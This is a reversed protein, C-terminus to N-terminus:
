SAGYIAVDFLRGPSITSDCQARAAIRTGSPITIPCYVASPAVCDGSTHSYCYYDPIIVQESGAAGVGIDLLWQNTDRATNAQNGIIILLGRHQRTTAATIETWSGKTNAVAGPDVSTGGSDATATGYDVWSSLGAQVTFPSAGLLCTIQSNAVAATSQTRVAVRSGGPIFVPIWFITAFFFISGISYLLNPLIVQESGAAGIAIDCLYDKSLSNGKLNLQIWHTDRTTAAVLQVYSGKTNAPTGANVFTGATQTEDAGIVSYVLGGHVPFDSM